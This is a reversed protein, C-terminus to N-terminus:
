VRYSKKQSNSPSTATSVSGVDSQISPKSTVSKGHEKTPISIDDVKVEERVINSEPEPRTEGCGLMGGLWNSWSSVYSDDEDQQKEFTKQALNRQKKSKKKEADKKQAQKVLADRRQNVIELQKKLNKVMDALYQNAGNDATEFPEDYTKVINPPICSNEAEVQSKLWERIYEEGSVSPQVKSAFQTLLVGGRKVSDTDPNETVEQIVQLWVEDGLQENRQAVAVIEQSLDEKLTRSGNMYLKINKQVAIAALEDASRRMTTLSCNLPKQQNKLGQRRIFPRLLPCNNISFINMHLMMNDDM